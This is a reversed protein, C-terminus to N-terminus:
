VQATHACNANAKVAQMDAALYEFSIEWSKNTAAFSDGGTDLSVRGSTYTCTWINQVQSANRVM